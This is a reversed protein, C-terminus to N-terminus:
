FAFGSKVENLLNDVMDLQGELIRKMPTTRDLARNPTRLWARAAPLDRNMLLLLDQLVAALAALRDQYRASAGYRSVTSPDKGLYRAIEELTCGFLDALKAADYRGEDNIADRLVLARPADESNMQLDVM